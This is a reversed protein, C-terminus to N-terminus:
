LEVEKTFGTEMVPKARQKGKLLLFGYKEVFEEGFRKLPVHEEFYDRWALDFSNADGKIKPHRRIPTACARELHLRIPKGDKTREGTDAAFHWGRGENPHWYKVAVWRSPKNNHRKRAWNWLARWIATDAKKFTRKASIHRHYNAWGRIVPNLTRILNEHSAGKNANILGRIKDLFKLTNKKSPTVLVVGNYSRINQGLFDFGETIHTVKTKEPSLRLGRANLFAEILPRVEYELLERSDDTVIFDGAYRVFNVKPNVYSKALRDWKIPFTEDLLTQLGDLTMNALTPSIIGGQPTGETTPFQKGKEIYGARLWKRLVENVAPINSLMWEHRIHGYCGQIDAELVWAPSHRQGLVKFCQDIADTTSRGARFGYSNKDALTEAVPELALLHLAQMARDRMTPIGLPRLKGNAKPIHVRRLPQPQYGRRRLQGIAKHKSAPTRWIEGDVGSTRKSKNSTVQKVALAKGSFSHCLLWQLSKVKGWRKQRTAKVLRAQLRRVHREHKPWNVQEWDSATGSPACVPNQTETNM